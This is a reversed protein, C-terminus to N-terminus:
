TGFRKALEADAEDLTYTRGSQLSAVGKTLEADLQERTLAGAAVPKSTPLRPDFPLGGRLVVQSYLM